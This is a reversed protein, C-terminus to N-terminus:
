GMAQQCFLVGGALNYANFGNAELIRAALYGRYGIRCTVVVPRQKDLEDLRERLEDLPINVFGAFAGAEFERPTRVDVLQTRGDNQLRPLDHWHAQRLKGQRVNQAMFGLMNVPDKASGFPPAYCLELTTLDDVTMRGRIATALVDIRKDVGDGGVAQAGLVRGDAPDFLLKLTMSQAGPYYGAHHAAVTVVKDCRLQRACAAKESLGTMAVVTDFVKVISTGQTGTYSSPLGCIHDAAIRGQRNAPGALPLFAKGGGVFENVECVDGVAYIDLDSTRMHEDVIVAGRENCHLDAQLAMQCEPRVGVSLVVLDTTCSHGKLKVNLGHAASKISQLASGTLVTVGAREVATRVTGAMDADLPTLLQDAADALTVHLGRRALNEAMELGVYGGGVVLARKASASDLWQLVAAANPITRLTFVGPLDVGDVPPVVPAAGTALVLKDFREEKEQGTESDIYTVCREDRDIATVACNVRVDVKFRAGFGGPTQLQLQQQEAIVGGVYYPLGCNAFSIFPGREFMIIECDEDLRRLRAAASAGGAVGGVIVIKM